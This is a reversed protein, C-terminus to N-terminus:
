RLLIPSLVSYLIGMDVAALLAIIALYLINKGDHSKKQFDQAENLKKDIKEM